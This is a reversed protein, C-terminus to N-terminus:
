PISREPELFLVISTAVAVPRDTDAALDAHLAIELDVRTGGDRPTIAAVRATLSLASGVPIRQIFRVRDLGYNVAQAVGTVELLEGWFRAVLSLALFGHVITGGVAAARAPDVHIWQEDGTLRAFDDVQAQDIVVASSPGLERGLLTPLDALDVTLPGSAAARDAVTTESADGSEGAGVSSM